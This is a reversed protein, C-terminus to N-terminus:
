AVSTQEYQLKRAFWLAANIYCCFKLCRDAYILSCFLLEISFLTRETVRHWNVKNSPLPASSGSQFECDAVHSERELSVSSDDCEGGRWGGRGREEECVRKNIAKM